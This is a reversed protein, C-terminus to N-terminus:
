FEEISFEDWDPAVDFKKRYDDLEAKSLTVTTISETSPKISKLPLGIPDIIASDGTHKMGRGDTGVRNVGAVYCQNEIARAVLLSNWAHKRSEPWNAIFIALDYEHKGSILRNRSWVPFRLDYCVLPLINWGKLSAVLRKTGMSFQRDEGAMRFLHRKDYFLLDGDPQMWILRNYYNEDEFVIISGTIVAKLRSAMERLWRISPGSMTESFAAPDTIFGTNFMEPLIVLDTSGLHLMKEELFELNKRTDGWFLYTQLLTITLDHM